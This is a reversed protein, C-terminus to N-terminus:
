CNNEISERACHTNQIEKFITLYKKIARMTLNKVTISFIVLSKEANMKLGNPVFVYPWDIMM